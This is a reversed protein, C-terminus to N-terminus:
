HTGENQNHNREMRRNHKKGNNQNNYERPTLATKKGHQIQNKKTHHHYNCTHRAARDGHINSGYTNITPGHTNKSNHERTNPQNKTIGKEYYENNRGWISPNTTHRNRPTEM